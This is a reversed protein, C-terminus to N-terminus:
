HSRRFRELEAVSGIRGAASSWTRYVSVNFGAARAANVLSRRQWATLLVVGIFPSASTSDVLVVGSNMWPPLLRGAVVTLEPDRHVLQTARDLNLANGVGEPEFVVTGPTITLRGFFRSMAVAVSVHGLEFMIPPVPGADTM